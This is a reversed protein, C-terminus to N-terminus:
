AKSAKRLKHDRETIPRVVVNQRYKNILKTRIRIIRGAHKPCYYGTWSKGGFAHLYLVAKDACEYGQCRISKAM